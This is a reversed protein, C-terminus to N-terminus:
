PGQKPTQNVIAAANRYMQYIQHRRAEMEDMYRSRNQNYYVCSDCAADVIIKGNMLTTKGNAKNQFVLDEMATCESKQITKTLGNVNFETTSNGVFQLMFVTMVRCEQARALTSLAIFLLTLISRRFM